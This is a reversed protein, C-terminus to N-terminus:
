LGLERAKELDRGARETDGLAEYARGRHWYAPGNGPEAEIVRTLDAVAEQTRGRKLYLLSRDYSAKTNSPDLGLTRDFDELAREVEGTAAYVLGRHHYTDPRDPDMDVSRNLDRLAGAYEKKQYLIYGHVDLGEPLFPKILLAEETDAAAKDLDGQQAYVMGRNLYAIYAQPDIEIAKTYDNIAAEPKGEQAWYQGRRIYGSPGDNLTFGKLFVEALEKEHDRRSRGGGFDYRDRAAVPGRRRKERPRALVAGSVDFKKILELNKGYILDESEEAYYYYDARGDPGYKEERNLWWLGKQLVYFNVSPSFLWDDRLHVSFPGPANDEELKSIIDLMERTSADYKWIHYHTVNLCGV